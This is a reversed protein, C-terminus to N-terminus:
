LFSESREPRTKERGVQVTRAVFNVQSWALTKIETDRLGGNRALMFARYMHPIHSNKAKTAHCKTEETDYAKGIQKHVILMLQKTKKLQARNAIHIKDTRRSTRRRLSVQVV